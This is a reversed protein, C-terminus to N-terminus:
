FGPSLNPSALDYKSLPGLYTQNIKILVMSYEKFLSFASKM